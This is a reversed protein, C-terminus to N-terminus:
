KPPAAPAPTAPPTAPSGTPAAQGPRTAAKIAGGYPASDVLKASIIRPAPDVPKSQERSNPDCPSSELKVIVEAGAIAQAFACYQGDLFSTGERSFCVFVQSGNTNPDNTRAMSLVGFDHPLKSPELEIVYGPGGGGTGTPDGVQAMFGPRGNRPGIIRHFVIDTYFGGSVLQMFNWSTNPAQDPRLAFTIEGMTTTMVVDKSVYARFGSNRSPPQNMWSWAGTENARAMPPNALPQMVVPAGIREEGIVLQAYALKPADTWIKQFVQALDIPGAAVNARDTPEASGPAFMQVTVEGSKGEPVAVKMPIARGVGYYARDPTLQATAISSAVAVAALFTLRAACSSPHVLPNISM